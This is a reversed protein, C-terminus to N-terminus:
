TSLQPSFMTGILYAGGGPVTAFVTMAASFRPRRLALFVQPCLACWCRLYDVVEIIDHEMKISLLNPYEAMMACVDENSWDLVGRYYQM